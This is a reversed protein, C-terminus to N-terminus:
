RRGAAAETVTTAQQEIVAAPPPPGASPGPSTAARQKHRAHEKALDRAFRELKEANTEGALARGQFLVSEVGKQLLMAEAKWVAQQTTEGGCATRRGGCSNRRVLLM